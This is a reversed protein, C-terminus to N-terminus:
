PARSVVNRCRPCRVPDGTPLRVVSLTAKCSPCSFELRELRAIIADIRARELHGLNVLAEALPRGSKAVEELCVKLLEASIWGEAVVIGGLVRNEQRRRALAREELRRDDNLEVATAREKKYSQRLLVLVRSYQERTLFGERLLSQGLSLREDTSSQIQLCRDIQEQTCFGEGLAVRAFDDNENM